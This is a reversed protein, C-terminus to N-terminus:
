NDSNNQKEILYILIKADSHGQKASLNLYYSAQEMDGLDKYCLGLYYNTWEKKAENSIDLEDSRKLDLIAKEFEGLQYYSIGLGYYPSWATPSLSRLKEFYDIAEYYKGKEYLALGIIWYGAAFTSDIEIARKYDEFGRISDGIKEQIIGRNYFWTPQLSDLAIANNYLRLAILIDGNQKIIDEAELVYRAAIEEKNFPQMCSTMTLLLVWVFFRVM